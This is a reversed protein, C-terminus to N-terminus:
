SRFAPVKEALIGDLYGQPVQALGDRTQSAPVASLADYAKTNYATVLDMTSTIADSALV